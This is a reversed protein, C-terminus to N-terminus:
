RKTPSDKPAAALSGEFQRIRTDAAGVKQESRVLLRDGAFRLRYTTVFPTQYRVIALTYTDDASWAGSAAIPETSGARALTAKRWARYGAVVRQDVGGIRM